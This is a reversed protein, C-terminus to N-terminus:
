RAVARCLALGLGTGGDDRRRSEDLRVFREFVRERDAPAIGPGDDSVLVVCEAGEVELAIWVTSSAHRLGNEILNRILSDLRGPEATLRVPKLSSAVILKDSARGALGVEAIVIDDLDIEVSQGVERGEDARALVLLDSVLDELRVDEAILEEFLGDLDDPPQRRAVDLMTRLSAIPSKLEHSADSVFQRQAIMSAELRDLMLNMTAALHDVEDDTGPEPVRRDLSTASIAEAQSRIAEVPRLARGTLVWVTWAVVLLILPFGVALRPILLDILQRVPDLSAAVIVTVPGSPTQAGGSAILFPTGTDAGGEGSETGGDAPNLSDVRFSRAAGPQMRVNVLPGQGEISASSVVVTSPERVVQVLLDEGKGPIPQSLSGAQALLVIDRMRAEANNQIQSTLSGRATLVLLAMVASVALGVVVVALTTTQARVGMRHRGRSPM